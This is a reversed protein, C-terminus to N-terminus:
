FGVAQRAVVFGQARFVPAENALRAQFAAIMLARLGGEVFGRSFGILIGRALITIKLAPPQSRWALPQFVRDFPNREPWPEPQFEAPRARMFGEGDQLVVETPRWFFDIGAQCLFSRSIPASAM